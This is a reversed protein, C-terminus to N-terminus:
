VRVLRVQIRKQEKFIDDTIKHHPYLMGQLEVLRKIIGDFYADETNMQCAGIAGLDGITSFGLWSVFYYTEYYLCTKRIYFHM